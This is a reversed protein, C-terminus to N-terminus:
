CKKSSDLFESKVIGYTYTNTEDIFSNCFIDYEILSTARVRVSRCHDSKSDTQNKNCCQIPLFMDLLYNM